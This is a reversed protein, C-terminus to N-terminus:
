FAKLAINLGAQFERPELEAMDHIWKPLPFRVVPLAKGLKQKILEYGKSGAEDNDLASIVAKAESLKQVQSDSVSWNLPSAITINLRGIVLMNQWTKWADFVGETVIVIKGQRVRGYLTDTKRLGKSIRYKDERNDLTRTMYGKFRGQEYIPFIIPYDSSSNIRANFRILTSQTFGRQDILYHHSINRWSPMALSFFFARAQEIAEETTEEQKIYREALIIKAGLEESYANAMNRVIETIRVMAALKNIHEFASVLDALDGHKACGYCYFKEDELWVHCSPLEESHFPCLISLEAAVLKSNELLRYHELVQLSRSIM